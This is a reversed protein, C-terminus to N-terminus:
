GYTRLAFEMVIFFVIGVVFFSLHKKREKPILESGIMYFLVGAIFSLLIATVQTSIGVVIAFIVGVITGLSIILSPLFSARGTISHLSFDEAIDGTLVAFFFLIANQVGAQFLAFLLIGEVAKFTFLFVRHLKRESQKSKKKRIHRYIVHELFLFLTFGILISFSIVTGGAAYVTPLLEVLLYTLTFGIGFSILNRKLGSCSLCFGKGFYHLLGLNFLFIIIALIIPIHIM